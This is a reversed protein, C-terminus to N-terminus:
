DRDDDAGLEIRQPWADKSRGARREREGVEWSLIGEMRSGFEWGCPVATRESVFAGADIQGTHGPEAVDARPEAAVEIEVKTEVVVVPRQIVKQGDDQVLETMPQVEEREDVGRRPLVEQPLGVDIRAVEHVVRGSQMPVLHGISLPERRGR